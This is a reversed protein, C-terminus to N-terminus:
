DSIQIFFIKFSENCFKMEEIIKSFNKSLKVSNLVVNQKQIQLFRKVIWNQHFKSFCEEITM